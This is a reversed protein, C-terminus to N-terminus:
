MKTPNFPRPKKVKLITLYILVSYILLLAAIFSGTVAVNDGSSSKVTAAYIADSTLSILGGACSACGLLKGFHLSSFTNEVYCYLQSTFVSLYAVHLLVSCYLVWTVNTLTTIYMLVGIGNLGLIVPM